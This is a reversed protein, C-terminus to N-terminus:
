KEQEGYVKLTKYPNIAICIENANTYPLEHAFRRRLNDMINPEQM